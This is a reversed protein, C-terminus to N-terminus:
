AASPRNSLELAVIQDVDIVAIRDDETFYVITDGNRSVSLFEPHDVLYVRGDTTKIDFPIFPARKVFERIRDSKM